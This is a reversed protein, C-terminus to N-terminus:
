LKPLNRIKENLKELDEVKPIEYGDEKLNNLLRTISDLLTIILPITQIVTVTTKESLM